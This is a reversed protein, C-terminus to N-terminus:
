KESVVYVGYNPNKWSVMNVVFDRLPFSKNNLIVDALTILRSPSDFERVLSVHGEPGNKRKQFDALDYAFIVDGREFDERLLYIHEEYIEMNEHPNQFKSKLRFEKLFKNLADNNFKFWQEESIKPFYEEIHRQSMVFNRSKLLAQLTVPVCWNEQEAPLIHYEKM